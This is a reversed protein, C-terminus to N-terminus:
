EPHCGELLDSPNQILFLHKWSYFPSFFIELICFIIIFIRRKLKYYSPKTSGFYTMISHYSEFM